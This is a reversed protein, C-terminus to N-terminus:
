SAEDRESWALVFAVEGAAGPSRTRMVVGYGVENVGLM